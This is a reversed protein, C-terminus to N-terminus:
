KRRTRRKKTRKKKLSKRRVGRKKTRRRKRRKKTKKKGASQTKKRIVALSTRDEIDFPSKIMDAEELGQMLSKHSRKSSETPVLSRPRPKTRRPNEARHSGAVNFQVKILGGEKIKDIKKRLKESINPKDFKKVEEPDYYQDEYKYMLKVNIQKLPTQPSIDWPNGEFVEDFDSSDSSDSNNLFAAM